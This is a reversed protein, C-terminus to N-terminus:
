YGLEASAPKASGDAIGRILDALARWRDEETADSAGGVHPTMVVNDLEHYPFNSPFCPEDAKPYNWWVDIGAGALRNLRLADYLASEDFIAGRAINSVIATESLLAIRRADMLGETEATLPLAVFLADTQPLLQDLEELPRIRDDFPGNRRIASVKMDMGECARAIRQGIAGYGLVLARKGAARISGGSGSRMFSAESWMGNRLNRDRVVIQKAVAMYLAMAMEATDASNHHLNYLKIHPRNALLERTQVPIGAFPIVVAKLAHLTTFEEETPRGKALVETHADVEEGFRCAAIESLSDALHQSWEPTGWFHVRVM